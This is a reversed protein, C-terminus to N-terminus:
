HREGREIIIGVDQSGRLAGPKSLRLKLWPVSFEDRVISAIEEAMREVLLFESQEVFKILRKAISKYNLAYQIDDSEAAKSINHAMELDLSITQKVEREWDYIGIITEIRLDRIYVIDM